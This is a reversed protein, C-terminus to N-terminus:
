TSRPEGALERIRAAHADIEGRARPRAGRAPAHRPPHRAGGHGGAGAGAADRARPLAARRRADRAGRALLEYLRWTIDADECAYEAVREVPGPGHHDAERGHRDARPDPDEPASTALALEDLGHRADRRRRLVVGGDHRLRAAAPAPRARALVLADYKSNQGCAGRAEPRTLLPECRTSCRPADGRARGRTPTSRCTSPAGARASFSLGVCSPRSRSSAPPRPTSRSLDAAARLEREHGDLGAADRVIM